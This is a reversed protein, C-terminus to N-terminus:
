RQTEWTAQQKKFLFRTFGVFLALNVSVFYYVLNIGKISQGKRSYFHYFLLFLYSFMQIGALITFYINNIALIGNTFFAIIMAFPVIWKIVRHSVYVFCGKRPFLMKWFVGIAQYHGSGDRVHRKFQSKFDDNPEEYAIADKDLIVDFGLQLVLTSVYFDDNIIGKRIQNMLGNRIAYIAGNAGSLRGTKSELTKILNEYKWYASESKAGQGSDANLNLRVQGSVCGIRQDAFNRVLKKIAQPDFMTNADSFVLIESTARKLLFNLVNVKGGRPLDFVKLNKIQSFKNAIQVTRDSSGDSGILFEIKNEPYDSICLNRIKEAIVKEENYAAILISVSPQFSDDRRYRKHIFINLIKLILPYLFYTYIPLFFVLGIIIYLALKM